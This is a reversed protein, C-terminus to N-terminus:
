RKHGSKIVEILHETDQVSRGVDVREVFETHINYQPVRVINSEALEAKAVFRIPDPLEAM